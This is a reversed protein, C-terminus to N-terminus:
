LIEILQNRVEDKTPISNMGMRTVSASALQTAFRAAEWPDRTQQHRYFFSSAFIDGAGTNNIENVHPASFHRMDGKWYIRAGLRGETVALVNASQAYYEIIDEDELVDEISFVIADFQSVIDLPLKISKRTVRGQHDWVRMLGQPTIGKYSSPFNKLWEADFEGAVPGFHIIDPTLWDEPLIAFSIPDAIEHIIQERHKGVDRNEFITTHESQQIFVPITNLKSLDIRNKDTTTLIASVSGLAQATLSSYSATGGIQYKNQIKDLTIYGVVLYKM